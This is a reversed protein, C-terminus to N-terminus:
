PGFRKHNERNKSSGRINEGHIEFRKPVQPCQKSAFAFIKRHISVHHDLWLLKTGQFNKSYPISYSAVYNWSYHKFSVVQKLNNNTM